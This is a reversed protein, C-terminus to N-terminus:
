VILFNISRFITPRESLRPITMGRKIEEKKRFVRITPNKRQQQDKTQKVWGQRKGGGPIREKTKTILLAGVRKRKKRL